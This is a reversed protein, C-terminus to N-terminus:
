SHPGPPFSCALFFWCASTRRGFGPREPLPWPPSSGRRESDLLRIYAEHVLATAELTQGPAEQAMKQAALKRLEDYVLALLQNTVQPDGQGIANLIQTVESM